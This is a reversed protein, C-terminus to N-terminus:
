GKPNLPAPGLFWAEGILIDLASTASAPEAVDLFLGDFDEWTDGLIAVICYDKAADARRTAKTEHAYRPLYLPDRGFADLGSHMLASRVASTRDSPHESLWLVAVNQERVGDLIRALRGTAVVNGDIPATTGAPDLDILLASKAMGCELRAPDVRGPERLMASLRKESSDPARQTVRTVRAFMADYANEDVDPKLPGVNGARSAAAMAGPVAAVPASKPALEVTEVTDLPTPEVAVPSQEVGLGPAEDIAPTEVLATSPPEDAPVADAREFPPPGLAAIRADDKDAARSISREGILLGSAVPIAAVCGGLAPALAALALLTLRRTM